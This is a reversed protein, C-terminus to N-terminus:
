LIRMGLVGKFKCGLDVAKAQWFLKSIPISEDDTFDGVEKFTSKHILMGNLTAEDFTNRIKNPRGQKDYEMTISFLIDKENEIFLAFKHDINRHLPTGEMVVMTWDAKSKKFATNILSTVTSKGKSIPCVEAMKTYQEVKIGRSTVCLYPATPYNNKISRVTCMLNGLNPQSSIIAFGMDIQKPRYLEM